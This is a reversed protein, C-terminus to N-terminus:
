QMFWPHGGGCSAAHPVAHVARQCPPGRRGLAHRCRGARSGAPAQVAHESHQRPAGGPQAAACALALWCSQGGASSECGPQHRAPQWGAAPREPPLVAGQEANHRVARRRQRGRQPGLLSKAAGAHRGYTLRATTAYSQCLLQLCHGQGVRAGSSIYGAPGAQSLTRRLVCFCLSHAYLNSIAAHRRPLTASM